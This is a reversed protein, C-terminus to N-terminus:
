QWPHRLALASLTTSLQRVLAVRSSCGTKSLIQKSYWQVTQKTYRCSDAIEDVSHSGALRAAIDAEAPTLGYFVQLLRQNPLSERDPDSIFVVAGIRDERLGLLEHRKVPCVLMQLPTGGSPKPLSLAGGAQLGDGRTTQACEGCLRRVASTMAPLAATLHLRDVSLGDRQELIANAARNAHLVRGDGAVFLVGRRLTDLSDLAAQHELAARAFDQTMRVARRLHPTLADLFRVEDDSFEPDRSARHLSLGSVGHAGAELPAHLLRSKDYRATFEYYETKELDGRSLLAEGPFVRGALSLTRAAPAHAWADVQHYHEDYLRICDPDLRATQLVAGHSALDHTLLSAGTGAVADAISVLLAPWLRSDEAADYTQEILALLHRQDLRV